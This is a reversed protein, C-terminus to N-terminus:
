HTANPNSTPNAAATGRRDDGIGPSGARGPGHTASGTIEDPSLKGDQNTDLKDFDNALNTGTAEERSIFGDHNKDFQDFADPAIRTSGASAGGPATGPGTQSGAPADTQPSSRPEKAGPPSMKGGTLQALAALPVAFAAALAIALLARFKM